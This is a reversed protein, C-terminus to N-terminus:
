TIRFHKFVLNLSTLNTDNTLLNGSVATGAPTQNIDDSAIGVCVNIADNQSTGIGQGQDSGIDATGGNNVLNPIGNADVGGTSAINISGNANIQSSTVNEDGENADSCGDNDSDLDYADPYGDLDTDFRDNIGDLNVDVFNGNLLDPDRFNFTGDNDYDGDPAYGNYGEVIDTIGDNDDDLDTNDNVGDGDYDM